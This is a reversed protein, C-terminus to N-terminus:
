FLPRQLFAAKCKMRRGSGAAAAPVTQVLASVVVLILMVTGTIIRLLIGRKKVM